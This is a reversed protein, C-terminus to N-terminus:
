SQPKALRDIILGFFMAGQVLGRGSSFRWGMHSLCSGCLAMQWAHPPFWSFEDTPPGAVACGPAFQFCGIEFVIGHPNAFTHSHAGDVAIRSSERTIEAMCNRCLLRDDEPDIEHAEQEETVTEPEGPNGTEGPRRNRMEFATHCPTAYKNHM